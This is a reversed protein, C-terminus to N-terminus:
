PKKERFVFAKLDKFLWLPAIIFFLANKLLAPKNGEIKHGVGLLVWGTVFLVVGIWLDVARTLVLIMGM